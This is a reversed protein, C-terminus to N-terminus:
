HPVHWGQLKYRSCLQKWLQIRMQLYTNTLRLAYFLLLCSLSNRQEDWGLTENRFCNLYSLNFKTCLTQVLLQPSLKFGTVSINNIFSHSHRLGAAVLPGITWGGPSIHAHLAMTIIIGAPFLEQGTQCLERATRGAAVVRALLLFPRLLSFTAYWYRFYRLPDKVHQLIKHCWVEPKVELGFSPTSLIKWGKFDM